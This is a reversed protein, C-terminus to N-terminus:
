QKTLLIPGPATIGSAALEGRDDENLLLRLEARGGEVVRLEFRDPEDGEKLLFLLVSGRQTVDSIPTLGPPSADARRVEGRDDVEFKGLSIGGTFGGNASKIELRVFTTGKFQATWSGEAPTAAQGGPVFGLAMLLTLLRM